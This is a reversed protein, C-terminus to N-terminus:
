LVFIIRWGKEESPLITLDAGEGDNILAFERKGELKFHLIQIQRTILLIHIIQLIVHPRSEKLLFRQRKQRRGECARSSGGSCRPGESSRAVGDRRDAPAPAARRL